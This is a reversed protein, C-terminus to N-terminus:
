AQARVRQWRPNALPGYVAILLPAKRHPIAPVEDMRIYGLHVM